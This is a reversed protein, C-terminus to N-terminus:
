QFSGMKPLSYVWLAGIIAVDLAAFAISIALLKLEDNM